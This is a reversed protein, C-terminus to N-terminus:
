LNRLSIGHLFFKQKNLIDSTNWEYFLVSFYKKGFDSWLDFSIAM